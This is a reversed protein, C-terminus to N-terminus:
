TVTLYAGNWGIKGWNSPIPNIVVDRLMALNATHLTVSEESPTVEYEGDYTPINSTTVNVQTDFGFDIQNDSIIEFEIENANEVTEIEFYNSTEFGFDIQQSTEFDFSIENSIDKVVIEFYIPNDM